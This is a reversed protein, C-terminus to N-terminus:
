VATKTTAKIEKTVYREELFIKFSVALSAKRRSTGFTFFFLKSQDTFNLLHLNDVLHFIRSIARLLPLLIAAHTPIIPHVINSTHENPNHSVM